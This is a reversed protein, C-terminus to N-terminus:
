PRFCKNLHIFLPHTASTSPSLIEIITEQCVSAILESIPPESIAQSWLAVDETPALLVAGHGDPLKVYYAGNALPRMNATFPEGMAPSYLNFPYCIPSIFRSVDTPCRGFVYPLALVDVLASGYTLCSAVQQYSLPDTNMLFLKAFTDELYGQRLEQLKTRFAELNGFERIKDLAQHMLTASVVDYYANMACTNMNDVISFFTSIVRLVRRGHQDFYRVRFQVGPSAMKMQSVDYDLVFYVADNAGLAPVTFAQESRWYGAGFIEKIKLCPSFTASIVVDTFKPDFLSKVIEDPLVNLQVPDCLHCLHVRANVFIALEALGSYDPAFMEPKVAWIELNCQDKFVMTSAYERFKDVPEM